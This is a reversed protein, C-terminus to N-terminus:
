RTISFISVSYGIYIRQESDYGASLINGKANQLMLNAKFNMKSLDKTAGTEIGGLLRFKTKPVKLTDSYAKIEYDLKISEVTGRSIGSATAKLKPFDWSQSFSNLQIAKQYLSDLKSKDTEASFANKLKLNEALLSDILKQNKLKEANDFRTNVTTKSKNVANILSVDIPVNLPKVAKSSGVVAPHKVIITEHKGSCGKLFLIVVLAIIFAGFIWKTINTKTYEM